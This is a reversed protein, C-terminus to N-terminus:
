AAVLALVACLRAECRSLVWGRVCVVDGAEFDARQYAAAQRQLAAEAADGPSIAALLAAIRPDKLVAGREAPFAELYAVGIQRATERDTRMATACFAELLGVTKSTLPAAQVTPGATVVSAALLGLLVRRERDPVFSM